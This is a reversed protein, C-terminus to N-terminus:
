RNLLEFTVFATGLVIGLQAIHSGGLPLVMQRQFLAQLVELAVLAVGAITWIFM